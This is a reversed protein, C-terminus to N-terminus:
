GANKHSALISQAPLTATILTGKGPGSIVTFTGGALEIRERMSKLGTSGKVVESMTFGRGHDEVVIELRHGKSQVSVDAQNVGAHQIVNEIGEQIIRLVVTEVLPTLSVDAFSSRFKVNLGSKKQVRSFHNELIEKLSWDDQTAPRLNHSLDRISGIIGDILDNVEELGTQPHRELEESFRAIALKLGILPQGISDHIEKGIRRNLVEYGEFLSKSLTIIKDHADKRESIDRLSALFNSRNAWNLRTARMEVTLIEGSRRIIEIETVGEVLPYRLSHGALNGSEAEFLSEAAPNAYAIKGDPDVLLVGDPLGILLTRLFRQCPQNDSVEINRSCWM